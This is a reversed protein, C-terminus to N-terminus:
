PRTKFRKHLCLTICIIPITLVITLVIADLHRGNEADYAFIQVNLEALHTPDNEAWPVTKM